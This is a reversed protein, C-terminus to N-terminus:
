LTPLYDHSVQSWSNITTPFLLSRKKNSILWEKVWGDDESLRVLLNNDELSTRKAEKESVRSDTLTPFKVPFLPPPALSPRLFNQNSGHTRSETLLTM